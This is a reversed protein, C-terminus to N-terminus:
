GKSNADTSPTFHPSSADMKISHSAKSPFPNSVEPSLVRICASYVDGFASIVQFYIKGEPLGAEHGRRGTVSHPFVFSISYARTGCLVNCM